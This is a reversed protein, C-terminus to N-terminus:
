RVSEVARAAAWAAVAAQRLTAVVLALAALDLAIGVAPAGLAWAAAGLAGAALATVVAGTALRPWARFRALQAGHEHEEVGIAVRAAGLTGARVELDWGDYPGGSIVPMGAASMSRSAFSIAVVVGANM